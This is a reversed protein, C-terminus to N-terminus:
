AFVFYSHSGEGECSNPGVEVMLRSFYQELAYYGEVEIMTMQVRKRHSSARIALLRKSKRLGPQCMARHANAWFCEESNLSFVSRM